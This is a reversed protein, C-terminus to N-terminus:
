SVVEEAATQERAPDGPAAPNLLLGLLFKMLTLLDQEVAAVRGVREIWGLSALYAADARRVAEDEGVGQERFQRRLFEIRMREVAEARRAVAPDVTAWAFIAADPPYDRSATVIEFYRVLRQAPTAARAAETVVEATEREWLALLAELLAPRDAFHWYFSGKTVGLSRALPEVRVAEVGGERLARVGQALWDERQRM